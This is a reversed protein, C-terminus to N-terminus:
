FEFLGGRDSTAQSSFPNDWNYCIPISFTSCFSNACLQQCVNGSPVKELLRDKKLKGSKGDKYGADEGMQHAKDLKEREGDAVLQFRRSDESFNMEASVPRGITLVVGFVALYFTTLKM